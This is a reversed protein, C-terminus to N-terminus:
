AFPEYVVQSLTPACHEFRKVDYDEDNEGANFLKMCTFIMFIYSTMFTFYVKRQWEATYGASRCGYVIIDQM